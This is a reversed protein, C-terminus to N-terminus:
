PPGLLASKCCRVSCSMQGSSVVGSCSLANYLARCSCRSWSAFCWSSPKATIGKISACTILVAQLSGPATKSGCRMKGINCLSISPLAAAAFTLSWDCQLNSNDHEEAGQRQDTAASRLQPHQATSTAAKCTVNGCCAPVGNGFNVHICDISNRKSHKSM